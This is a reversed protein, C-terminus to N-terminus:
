AAKWNGGELRNQIGPKKAIKKTSSVAASRRPALCPRGGLLHRITLPWSLGLNIPTAGDVKWTTYIQWLIQWMKPYYSLSLKLNQKMTMQSLKTRIMLTLGVDFLCKDIDLVTHRNVFKITSRRIRESDLTANKESSPQHQYLRQMPSIIHDSQDSYNELSGLRVVHKLNIYVVQIPLRADNSM